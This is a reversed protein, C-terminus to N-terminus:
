SWGQGLMFMLILLVFLGISIRIGAKAYGKGELKKNMEIDKLAKKGCRFSIILLFLNIIYFIAVTSGSSVGLLRFISSFAGTFWLFIFLFIPSISLIFSIHALKSQM